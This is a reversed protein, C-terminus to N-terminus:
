VFRVLFSAWLLGFYAYYKVAMTGITAITYLGM